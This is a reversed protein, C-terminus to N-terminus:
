QLVAKRDDAEIEPDDDLIMDALFEMVKPSDDGWLLSSGLADGASDTVWLVAVTKLKQGGRAAAAHMARELALVCRRVADDRGICEMAAAQDRDTM